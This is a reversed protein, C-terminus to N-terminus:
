PNDVPIVGRTMAVPVGVQQLSKPQALPDTEPILPLQPSARKASRECGSVLAVTGAGVLVLILARKMPLWRMFLPQGRLLLKPRIAFRSGNM